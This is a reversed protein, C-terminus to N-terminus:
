PISLLFFRRQEAPKIVLNITQGGTSNFTNTAVPLWNAIQLALNTTSWVRFQTASNGNTVTLTLNGGVMAVRSIKPKTGTVIISLNGSKNQYDARVVGNTTQYINTTTALGSAAISAIPGSVLSWIVNTASLSLLTGDDLLGRCALQSTGGATVNTPQASLVLSQLDYLQGAYGSRAIVYPSVASSLGALCCLNGDVTYRASTIKTGGANLSGVTNALLAASRSEPTFMLALLCLLLRRLHTHNVVIKGQRKCFFM